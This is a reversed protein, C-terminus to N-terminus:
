KSLKHVKAWLMSKRRSNLLIQQHNIYSQIWRTRNSDMDLHLVIYQDCQLSRMGIYSLIDLCVNDCLPIYMSLIDDILQSANKKIEIWNGMSQNKHLYDRRPRICIRRGHLRTNTRKGRSSRDCHEQNDHNEM